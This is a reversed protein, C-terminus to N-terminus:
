CKGCLHLCEYAFTESEQCLPRNEPSCTDADVDFQTCDVLLFLFYKM